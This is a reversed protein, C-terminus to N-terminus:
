LSELETRYREAFGRLRGIAADLQGVNARGLEIQEQAGTIDARARDLEEGLRQLEKDSDHKLERLQETEDRLRGLEEQLERLSSRLREYDALTGSVSKRGLIIGVVFAVAGVVIGWYKKIWTWTKEYWKM